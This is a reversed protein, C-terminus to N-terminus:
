TKKIEFSIEGGVISVEGFEGEVLFGNNNEELNDINGYDKEGSADTAVKVQSLELLGNLEKFNIFSLIAPKYCTHEKPKPKEYYTHNRGFVQKSSSLLNMKVKIGRFFLHIM